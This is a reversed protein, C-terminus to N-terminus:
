LIYRILLTNELDTTTAYLYREDKDITFTDIEEDLVYHGVPIGKWDYKLIHKGSSYRSDEFRKDSYLFYIHDNSVFSDIFGTHAKPVRRIANAGIEPIYSSTVGPYQYFKSTTIERKDIDIIDFGVAYFYFAVASSGDPKVIIEGQYATPRSFDEAPIHKLSKDDIPYEGFCDVQGTKTDYICFRTNNSKKNDVDKGIYILSRLGVKTITSFGYHGAKLSIIDTPLTANRISDASYIFLTEPEVTAQIMSDGYAVVNLLNTTEGPGRGKRLFSTKVGTMTNYCVIMPDSQRENIFLLSDILVLGRPYLLDSLVIEEKVLNAESPFDEFIEFDFTNYERVGCACCMAILAIMFFWKRM